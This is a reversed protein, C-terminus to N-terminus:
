CYIVGTMLLWKPLEIVPAPEPCDQGLLVAHKSIGEIDFAMPCGNHSYCVPKVRGHVIM